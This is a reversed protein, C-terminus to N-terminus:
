SESAFEAAPSGARPKLTFAILLATLLITLLVYVSGEPGTPGGSQLLPGQPQTVLLRHASVHGSDATGYFFSEAWDWSAHWGVAWWLSGTRWLSFAFVLGILGAAVLGIPSEGANAKHGFGFLFSFFLAAIWFGAAKRTRDSMGLSGTLGAMGRALTFQLYGRTLFEEFLGVFLFVLAWLSGWELVAAGHLLLGGFVILHAKWLIGILLSLTAFGLVLGYFFQGARASLSGLGYRAFRRKEIYAMALAALAAGAFQAVESLLSSKVSIDASSAGTSRHLLGVAILVGFLAFSIGAFMLLYLLISWGARLGDKGFFVRRVGSPEPAVYAKNDDEPPPFWEPAGTNAIPLAHPTIEDSM